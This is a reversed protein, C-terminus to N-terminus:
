YVYPVLRWRVRRCYREYEAGFSALLGREEWPIAIALYAVTFAAFALRDATMHPSGFVALTWGAYLPHRIVRYPGTTQVAEAPSQSRIGALELPDIARASQAILWLSFLQVGAHVAAQWGTVDYVDGGIPQWLVCVLMLLLSAIYAYVSRVLRPPVAHALWRKAGERAFLSHHAAFITLLLGDFVVSPLGPDLRYPRGNMSLSLLPEHFSSWRVAYCYGCLALSAVFLAGGLWVFLRELLKSM